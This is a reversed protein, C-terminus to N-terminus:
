NTGATQLFNRLVPSPQEPQMCCPLDFRAAEEAL